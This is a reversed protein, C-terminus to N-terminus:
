RNKTTNQCLAVRPARAGNPDTISLDERLMSQSTGALGILMLIMLFPYDANLIFNNHFSTHILYSLLVLRFFVAFTPKHSGIHRLLFLVFFFFVVYGIASYHFGINILGNHASLLLVASQGNKLFMEKRVAMYDSDSIGLPHQAVAYLGTAWLLPRSDSQRESNLQTIRSNGFSLVDEAAYVLLLLTLAGAVLSMKYLAHKRGPAFFLYGFVLFLEALLLSRTQSLLSAVFLLGLYWLYYSRRHRLYMYFGLIFSSLAFYSFGISYAFPGSLRFRDGFGGEIYAEETGLRGMEEGPLSSFLLKKVEFMQSAIPSIPHQLFAFVCILFHIFLIINIYKPDKKAILLFLFSFVLFSFCKVFDVYVEKFEMDGFIAMKFNVLLQLLAFGVLFTTYTKFYPNTKLELLFSKLFLFFLGFELLRDISLGGVRFRIFVNDVALLIAILFYAYKM